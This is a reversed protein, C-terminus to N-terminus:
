KPPLRGWKDTHRPKYAHMQTLLELPDGNVLPIDAHQQKMFGEAVAHNLFGRVHDYYGRTNLFACPKHHIGLQAWTLVEAMEELTGLGGPMAIFGDALDNMMAKREHMTEVVVLQSLGNHALEKEVLTQPIVGVVEGGNALAANALTGMLGVHAGGYVLTIRQRALASGLTIAAIEYDPAGGASSGCFVCVSKM